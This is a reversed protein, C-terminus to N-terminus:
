VVDEPADLYSSTQSHPPSGDLKGPPIPAAKAIPPLQVSVRLMEPLAAEVDQPVPAHQSGVAKPEDIVGRKGYRGLVSFGDKFSFLTGMGKKLGLGFGSAPSNPSSSCARSSVFKPLRLRSSAFSYALRYNKRAEETFGFFAFYLFASLVLFWRHLELAIEAIPSARWVVSPVQGVFSYNFHTDDWSLWPFIPAVRADFYIPYITVPLSCLIQTSSLAIFRLYRNQSSNGNQGVLMEKLQRSSKWFLRINLGLTHDATSGPSRVLSCLVCSYVVTVVTISLPWIYVLPFALPVNYINPYCGVDEFIDFRHGEVIIETVSTLRLPQLAILSPHV